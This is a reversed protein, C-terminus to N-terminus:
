AVRQRVGVDPRHYGSDEFFEPGFFAQANLDIKSPGRRRQHVLTREGLRHVVHEPVGQFGAGLDM